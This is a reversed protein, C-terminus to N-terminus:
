QVVETALRLLKSSLSLRASRAANLNAEFTVRGQAVSMNLTAGQQVAGPTDTITLAALGRMIELVRPLQGIAANSVFVIQCGKLADLQGKRQVTLGRAGVKKGNLPEIEVGFPDGGYVCLNLAGDLDAPWETFLAFNYLFAAKLRYESVDQARAFHALCLMALGLLLRAPARRAATGATLHARM